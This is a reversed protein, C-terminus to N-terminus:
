ILVVNPLKGTKSYQLYSRFEISRYTESVWKMLQM